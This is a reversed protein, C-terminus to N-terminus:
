GKLNEVLNEARKLHDFVAKQSVRHRAKEALKVITGAASWPDGLNIGKDKTLGLIIRLLVDREKTALPKDKAAPKRDDSEPRPFEAPLEWPPRLREAWASFVELDIKWADQIGNYPQKTAKLSGGLNAEAILLRKYFQVLDPAQAENYFDIEGPDIDCSLAVAFAVHDVRINGWSEWDPKPRTTNPLLPGVSVRAPDTGRASESPDSVSKSRKTSARKSTVVQRM